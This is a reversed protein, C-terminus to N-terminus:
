EDYLIDLEESSFEITYKMNVGHTTTAKGNM